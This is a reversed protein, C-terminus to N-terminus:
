LTPDAPVNTSYPIVTPPSPEMSTITDITPTLGPNEENSVHPTQSLPLVFNFSPINSLPSSYVVDEDMNNQSAICAAYNKESLMSGDDM